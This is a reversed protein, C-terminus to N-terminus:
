FILAQVGALLQLEPMKGSEDLPCRVQATPLSPLRSSRAPLIGSNGQMTRQAQAVVSGAM